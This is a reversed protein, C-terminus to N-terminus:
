ASIIQKPRFHLLFFQFFFPLFGFDSRSIIFLFLFSLFCFDLYFLSFLLGFLFQFFYIPIPSFFFDRDFLNKNSLAFLRHDFCPSRYCKKMLFFELLLNSIIVTLRPDFGPVNSTMIFKLCSEYNM